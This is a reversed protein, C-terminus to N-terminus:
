RADSPGTPPPAAVSNPPALGYRRMMEAPMNLGDKLQVSPPDVVFEPLPPPQETIVWALDDKRSGSGPNGGRTYLGSEDIGNRGVSYLRFSREGTREYLWALRTMPDLTPEALYEPSLEDLSNPYRDHALFYRELACAVGALRLNTQTDISKAFAKDLAPMVMQAFLGYEVMPRPLETVQVDKWAESQSKQFAAEIAVIFDQHAELALRWQRTLVARSLGGIALNTLLEPGRRLGTQELGRDAPETGLQDLSRRLELPNQRLLPGITAHGCVREARMSDAVQSPFDIAELEAQLTAWQDENWAHYQQAAMVANLTIASQAWQVLRSILLDSDGIELLRLATQLDRYAAEPEGRSNWAVSRWAACQTFSKLKALHPPLLDGCEEWSGPAQHNKLLEQGADTSVANRHFARFPDWYLKDRSTHGSEEEDAYRFRSQHEPMSIAQYREDLSARAPDGETGHRAARALPELFPHSWVNEDAPVPASILSAVAISEGARELMQMQHELRGKEIRESIFGGMPLSIVAVAYASLPLWIIKRRRSWLILLAIPNSLPFILLLRLGQGQACRFGATISSVWGVLLCLLFVIGTALVTAPLAQSLQTISNQM